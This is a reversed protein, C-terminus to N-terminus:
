AGGRNCPNPGRPVGPSPNRGRACEEARPSANNSAPPNNSPNKAGVVITSVILVLFLASATYGKKWRSTM